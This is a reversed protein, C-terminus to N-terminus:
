AAHASDAIGQAPASGALVNEYLQMHQEVCRRLGFVEYAQGRAAETLRRQTERDKLLRAIAVTMPKGPTQKFLLGNVKNAILEAVCYTAGGIVAVGVAMAWAIATTSVDGRAAVVMTDAVCILRELTMSDPPCVVTRPVPIRHAIRRIRRAERSDGPIIVRIDGRGDNLLAAATAADEHGSMHTVPEPLVIVYDKRKLGLASRNEPLRLQNIRAFDVGPRIVATTEPSVGGEILRRRVTESGCCVM